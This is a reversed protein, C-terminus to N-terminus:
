THALAAGSPERQAWPALHGLLEGGLDLLQTDWIGFDFDIVGWRDPGPWTGINALRHNTHQCGEPRHFGDAIGKPRRRV